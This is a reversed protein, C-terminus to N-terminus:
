TVDGGKGDFAIIFRSIADALDQKDAVHFSVGAMDLQETIDTMLDSPILYWIYSMKNM